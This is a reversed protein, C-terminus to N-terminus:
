VRVYKLPVGTIVDFHVQFVKGVTPKSLSDALQQASSIWVISVIGSIVCDHIWFYRIDVHRTRESNSYGNLLLNIVAKNDERLRIAPVTFGIWILFNRCWIAKGLRDSAGVLEGEASSKM